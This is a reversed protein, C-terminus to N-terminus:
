TGQIRFGDVMPELVLAVTEEATTEPTEYWVAYTIGDDLTTVYLRGYIRVGDRAGTYIAADWNTNEANYIRQANLEFSDLQPTVDSDLLEAVLEETSADTEGLSRFASFTRQDGEDNPRFVFWTAEDSDEPNEVIRWDLRMPHQVGELERSFDWESENVREAPDFFRTNTTLTEYLSGLDYTGPIREASFVLGINVPGLNIVRTFSQADYTAEGDVVSHDFELVPEGDITRPTFIGDTQLDFADITTSAVGLLDNPVNSVNSGPITVYVTFRGQQEDDATRAFPPAFSLALESWDEFRPIVFRLQSNVDARLNPDVGTNNVLTSVSTFGTTGGFATMLFGLNYQGSPAPRDDWTVPWTYETGPEVRVRGDPSVLSRYAQFRSGEPIDIVGLANSGETRNVTRQIDGNLDFVITVDNWQESNTEQYRGELSAVNASQDIILLENATVSGDTVIPLSVDWAFSSKTIGPKWRNILQPEGDVVESVLIRRDLLRVASGDPRVQDVALNGSAIRSGVVELFGGLPFTTSAEGRPLVGTLKVRPAIPAHFAIEDGQTWLQPTVANYYSRLMEGWSSLQAEQFYDNSFGRSEEPFFINQYSVRQAREGANGYSVVNNLERSVREAALRLRLDDTSLSVQQMFNGLDILERGGLFATYTYVNARAQGITPAFRLPQEIVIEAFNDIASVLRDFGRLDLVANTLYVNDAGPRLQIDRNIYTDVLAQGLETIPVDPERRLTEIFQTMDLAPDVVIEPSALSFDFYDAMVQHYEVSSMLCADNVILDFREVNSNEIAVRLAESLEPLTLINSNATDDTIIGRWGAGHSALALAYNQAPYNRVVWTLYQAFTEGAGTDLDGLDAIESSVLLEDPSAADTDAQVEFLRTTSWDGSVDTFDPHRDMMMLIRVDASSGGALEFEEFDRLVGAELNTDGGYYGIVTWEAEPRPDTEPFGVALLAEDSVDYNSSARESRELRVVLEFEGSTDGSTVGFRTVIIDYNGRSVQPFELYSSFDDKSRDDNQAIISGTEDILYVLTDLDGSTPRLDLILIESSRTVDLPFQMFPTDDDITGNYIEINQATTQLGQLSLLLLALLLVSLRTKM